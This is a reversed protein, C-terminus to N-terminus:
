TLIESNIRLSRPADDSAGVTDAARVAFGDMRSRDFGPVDVNAIIDRSLIRGLSKALPILEEGLPKLALQQRCIAEAEDREIVKLFQHQQAAHLLTSNSHETTM